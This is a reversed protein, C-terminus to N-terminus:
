YHLFRKTIACDTERAFAKTELTDTVFGFCM